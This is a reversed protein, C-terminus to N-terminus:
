AKPAALERRLWRDIMDKEYRLPDSDLQSAGMLYAPDTLTREGESVVRGGADTRQFRLEIRPPYIDRLIRVDHLQIGRWPEYGGARRIDTIEVDLRQGQPLRKEARDRLHEALQVVWNGRAAESRNGSYRLDTFQAPDTWRVTVGDEAPLERPTAPDTVNRVRADATGALALALLAAPVLPRLRM